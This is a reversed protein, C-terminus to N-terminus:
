GPLKHAASKFCVKARKRACDPGKKSYYRPRHEAITYNSKKLLSAVSLTTTSVGMIIGM